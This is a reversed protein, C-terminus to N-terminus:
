KQKSPPPLIRVRRPFQVFVGVARLARKEEADAIALVHAAPVEFPAAIGLPLLRRAVGFIVARV